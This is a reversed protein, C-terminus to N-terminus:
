DPHPAPQAEAPAAAGAAVMQALTDRAVNIHQRLLYVQDTFGLPIPRTYAANELADLQKTYEPLVPCASRAQRWATRPSCSSRM